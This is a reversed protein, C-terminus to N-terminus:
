RDNSFDSIKVMAMNFSDFIPAIDHELWQFSYEGSGIETENAVYFNTEGEMKYYATMDHIASIMDPDHSALLVKVGLYKRLLVLIGAFEVVWQPHLHAEPEDIMLITGDNLWCNEILRLIYAFSKIGTAADEIKIDLGDERIYHLEKSFGLDDEELKINGHIINRIIQLIRKTDANICSTDNANDLLDRFRSWIGGRYPLAHESLAMPTDIYIANNLMLPETFSETEFLDVGDESLNLNLPMEDKEGFENKITDALSIISKKSVTDRYLAINEQFISSLRTAYQTVLQEPSAVNEEGLIFGYARKLIMPPADNLYQSLDNEIQLSFSTYIESLEAEFNSEIELLNSFSMIYARYKSYYTTAKFFRCIKEVEVILSDVLYKKQIEDYRSITNVVYYLWRSLTSKGCGNIGALVTIGDILISADEIAHYNQIQFRYKAM